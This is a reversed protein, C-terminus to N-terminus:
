AIKQGHILFIGGCFGILAGRCLVKKFYNPDKSSSLVLGLLVLPLFLFGVLNKVWFGKDKLEALPNKLIARRELVTGIYSGILILTSNFVEWDQLKPDPFSAVNKCNKNIQEFWSEPTKSQWVHFVFYLYVSSYLVAYSVTM